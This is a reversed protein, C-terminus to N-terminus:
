YFKFSIESGDGIVLYFVNMLIFVYKTCRMGFIVCCGNKRAEAKKEALFNAFSHYQRVTFDKVVKSYHCINAVIREKNM